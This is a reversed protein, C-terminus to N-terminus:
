GATMVRQYRESFDAFASELLTVFAQAAPSFPTRPAHILFLSYHLASDILPHVKVSGNEIENFVVSLATITSWDSYRLMEITATYGDLYMIREMAVGLEKLYRLVGRSIEHHPLPSILKMSKVTRLDVPAFMDGFDALNSALVIPETHIPKFILGMDDEPRSAIAFDVTGDAVWQALSGSFAEHLVIEVNPYHEAYRPLVQGLVARTASPPFGITLRGSVSKAFAAMEARAASVDQVIRQCIGYFHTGATTPVIGTARRDFLVVGLEKELRAIQVSLAPQAVHEKQSAKTFSKSNYVSLFYTLQRVDM